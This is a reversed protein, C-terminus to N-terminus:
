KTFRATYTIPSSTRSQRKWTLISASPPVQIRDGRARGTEGVLCPGDRARTGPAGRRRPRAAVRLHVALRASRVRRDTGGRRGGRLPVPRVGGVAGTRDDVAHASTGSAALLAARVVRCGRRRGRAVVSLRRGM